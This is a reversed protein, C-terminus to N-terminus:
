LARYWFDKSRSNTHDGMTPVIVDQDTLQPLILM